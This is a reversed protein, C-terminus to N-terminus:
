GHDRDRTIKVASKSLVAVISNGDALTIRLEYFNGTPVLVTTSTAPAQLSGAGVVFGLEVLDHDNSVPCGGQAKTEAPEGALGRDRGLVLVAEPRARRSWASV